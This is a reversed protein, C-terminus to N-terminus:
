VRGFLAGLVGMRVLAYPTDVKLKEHLHTRHTEVTKPSLGLHDAVQKTSLGRAFADFVERERPSLTSVRYGAAAAESRLSITTSSEQMAAHLARMLAQPDLPKNLFNVAGARMAQVVLPTDAYGSIVIIPLRNPRNALEETLRVGDMRPLRVDTILCGTLEPTHEALFAEAAEYTKVILGAASLHLWLRERAEADDEVVFVTPIATDPTM